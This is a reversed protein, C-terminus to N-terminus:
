KYGLEAFYSIPSIGLSNLDLYGSTGLIRAVSAKNNYLLPLANKIPQPADVLGIGPPRYEASQKLVNLGFHSFAIVLILHKNNVSGSIIFNM